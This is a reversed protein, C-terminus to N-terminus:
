RHRTVVTLVVCRIGVRHLQEDLARPRNPRRKRQRRLVGITDDPDAPAEIADRQGDLERRSAHPRHARALDRAPEILPEMEKGAAGAASGATM